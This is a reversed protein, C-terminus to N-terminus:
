IFGHKERVGGNGRTIKSYVDSASLPRRELGQVERPRQSGNASVCDVVESRPRYSQVMAGPLPLFTGPELGLSQHPNAGIRRRPIVAVVPSLSLCERQAAREPTLLVFRASGRIKVGFLSVTGLIRCWVCRKRQM